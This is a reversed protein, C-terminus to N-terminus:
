WRLDSLRGMRPKKVKHRERVFKGFGAAFNVVFAPNGKLTHKGARAIDYLIMIPLVATFHSRPLNRYYTLYKNRISFMDQTSIKKNVKISVSGKHYVVAKPAYIIKFGASRMRWSLDVEEFYTFYFRCFGEDLTDFVKRSIMFCAGTICEDEKEVNYKPSDKKGIAEDVIMGYYTIKSGGHQLINTVKGEKYFILKPVTAGVNKYKKFPALLEKIFNKDVLTDNNLFLIYKGRSKKLGYESGGTFGINKKLRFLRTKKGFKSVYNKLISFEQTNSGNDVLVIEFDRYIQRKISELCEITDRSTNWNLIVISVKVM